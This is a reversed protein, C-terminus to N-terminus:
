LYLSVLDNQREKAWELFDVLDALWGAYDGEVDEEKPEVYQKLARDIEAIALGGWSPLINPKLGFMPRDMLLTALKAKPFCKKLVKGM